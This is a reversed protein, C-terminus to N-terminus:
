FTKTLAAEIYLICVKSENRQIVVIGRYINLVNVHTPKHKHTHTYTHSAISTLTHQHPHLWYFHPNTPPHTHTPPDTHTISHNRPTTSRQPHSAFDIPYYGGVQAAIAHLSHFTSAFRLKTNGPLTAIPNFDQLFVSVLPCHATILRYEECVVNSRIARPNCAGYMLRLDPQCSPPWISKRVEGIQAKGQSIGSWWSQQHRVAFIVVDFVPCLLSLLDNHKALSCIRGWCFSFSAPQRLKLSIRIYIRNQIQQTQSPETFRTHTEFSPHLLLPLPIAWWHTPNRTSSCSLCRRKRWPTCPQSGRWPCVLNSCDCERTNLVHWYVKYVMM